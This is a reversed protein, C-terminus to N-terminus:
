CFVEQDPTWKDSRHKQSIRQSRALPNYFVGQIEAFMLIHLPSLLGIFHLFQQDQTWKHRPPNKQTYVGLSNHAAGLVHGNSSRVKM